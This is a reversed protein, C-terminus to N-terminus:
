WYKSTLRLPRDAAKREYNVVVPTGGGCRPYRRVESFEAATVRKGRTDFTNAVRQPSWGVKVTSFEKKSVCAQDAANAPSATVVLGVVLGFAGTLPGVGVRALSLM